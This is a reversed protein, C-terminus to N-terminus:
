IVVWQGFLKRWVEGTMFQIRIAGFADAKEEIERLTLGDIIETITGGIGNPKAITASWMEIGEM